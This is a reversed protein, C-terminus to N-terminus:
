DPLPGVAAVAKHTHDFATQALEGRMGTYTGNLHNLSALKGLDEKQESRDIRGRFDLMVM